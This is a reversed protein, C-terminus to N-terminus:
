SQICVTKKQPFVFGKKLKEEGKKVQVEKEKPVKEKKIVEKTSKEDSKIIPKKQPLSNQVQRNITNNKEKFISPKKKPYIFQTESYSQGILLFFLLIVLSIFKNIM